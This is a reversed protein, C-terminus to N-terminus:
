MAFWRTCEVKFERTEGADLEFEWTLEHDLNIGFDRPPIDKVKAPKLTMEGMEGSFTRKVSLAAKEVRFNTVKFAATM